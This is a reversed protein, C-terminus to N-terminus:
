MEEWTLMTAPLPESADEFNWFTARAADWTFTYDGDNEELYLGEGAIVAGTVSMVVDEKNNDWIWGGCLVSGVIEISADDKDARIDETVVLAPYDAVATLQVREEFKLDGAVVLTGVLSVDNKLKFDGPKALIIRGPNTASMDMANLATVDAVDMDSKNYVYATYDTGGLHYTAYVAPDASPAPYPDVNQTMPPVPGYGMWWVWGVASLAGNCWGEEQINGNSHVDGYIESPGQLWATHTGLWAFPIEWKKSPVLVEASIQHKGRVTGDPNHVVGLAKIEYLDDDGADQTVSVNVYDATADIAIGSAGTWYDGAAVTTPPYMVFHTGIDIGSEALYQARTSAQRNAAAPMVTSHADLFAWGLTTVVATLALVVILIYGRHTTKQRSM